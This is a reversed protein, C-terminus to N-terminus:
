KVLNHLKGIAGKKRWETLLLEERGQADVDPLLSEFANADKGFLFAKAALNLIHGYCRLRYPMADSASVAGDIAFSSYLHYVTTDNNSANDSVM